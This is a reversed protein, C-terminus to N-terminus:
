RRPASAPLRLTSFDCFVTGGTDCVNNVQGFADSTLACAEGEKPLLDCM